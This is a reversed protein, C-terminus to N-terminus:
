KKQAAHSSKIMEDLIICVDEIVQFCNRHMREKADPSLPKESTFDVGSIAKCTSSGYKRDILNILTESYQNVIDKTVASNHPNYLTTGLVMLAGSIAGCTKQLNAIGGGFATAIKISDAKEIGTHEQYATFVSQACNYSNTFYHISKQYHSEM